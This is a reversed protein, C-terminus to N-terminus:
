KPWIRTAEKIGDAQYVLLVQPNSRRQRVEEPNELATKVSSERDAMVPHKATTILTSVAPAFPYQADASLVAM